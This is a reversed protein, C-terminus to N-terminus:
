WLVRVEHQCKWLFIKEQQHVRSRNNGGKGQAGTGMSSKEMITCERQTIKHVRGPIWNGGITLRGSDKMEEEERRFEM